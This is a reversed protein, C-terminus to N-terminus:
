VVDLLLFSISELRRAELFLFVIVRDDDSNTEVGWTPASSPSLSSAMQNENPM